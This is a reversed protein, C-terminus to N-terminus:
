AAPATTVAKRQRRRYMVFLGAAGGLLAVTTAPEPVTTLTANGLSDAISGGAGVTM